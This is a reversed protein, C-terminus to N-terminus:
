RGFARPKGGAFFVMGHIRVRHQIDDYPITEPAYAPNDSIVKLDGNMLVQLRKLLLREDDLSFVFIGGREVIRWEVEQVIMVLDGDRITPEMSDGSGELIGVIANPPAWGPLNRRLWDRGVAFYESVDETPVLAGAGASARVDYRPLTIADASASIVLDGDRRDSRACLWDLSVEYVDAIKAAIDISPSSGKEYRALTQVPVGVKRSFEADKMKGRLQNLRDLFTEPM